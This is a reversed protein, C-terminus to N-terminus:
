PLLFRFGRHGATVQEAERWTEDLGCSFLRTPHFGTVLPLPVVRDGEHGGVPQVEPRLRGVGRRRIGREVLRLLREPGRESVDPTSYGPGIAVEQQAVPTRIRPGSVRQVGVGGDADDLNNRPRDRGGTNGFEAALQ